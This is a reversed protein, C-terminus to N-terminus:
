QQVGVKQGTSFKIYSGPHKQGINCMFVSLEEWEWSGQLTHAHIYTHVM